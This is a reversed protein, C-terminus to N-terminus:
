KKLWASAKDDEIYKEIAKRAEEEAGTLSTQDSRATLQKLLDAKDKITLDKNKSYIKLLNPTLIGVIPSFLDKESERKMLVSPKIKVFDSEKLSNLRSTIAETDGVQAFSDLMDNMTQTEAEELEKKDTPVDLAAKRAAARDLRSRFPNKLNVKKGGVTVTTQDGSAWRNMARRKDKAVNKKLTSEARKATKHEDIAKTLNTSAQKKEDVSGSEMARDFREQAQAQAIGATEVKAKQVAISRRADLDVKDSVTKKKDALRAEVEKPDVALLDKTMFQRAKNYAKQTADVAKIDRTAGFGAATGTVMAGTLDATGTVKGFQNVGYGAAKGIGGAMGVLPKGVLPIRNLPSVAAGAVGGAVNFARRTLYNSGKGAYQRIKADIGSAGKNSISVSIKLSGILGAIILVFQLLQSFDMGIAGALNANTKAGEDGSPYLAGSIDSLNTGPINEGTTPNTGGVIFFLIMLLFLFYVIPFLCQSVLTKLWDGFINRITPWVLGAFYFPSTLLLYLVLVFRLLLFFSIALFSLGAVILIIGGFVGRLFMGVGEGFASTTNALEKSSEITLAAQDFKPLSNNTAIKVASMSNMLVVSLSQQNSLSYLKTAVVNSIDVAARTFFLSFNVLLAAVVLMVLMRRYNLMGRKQLLNADIIMLIGTYILMFIFILNTADRAMLWVTELGPLESMVWGMKVVSFRVIFDLGQGAIYVFLSSGWLIVIGVYKAATSLGTMLFSDLATTLWTSNETASGAVSTGASANQASAAAASLLGGVTVILFAALAAVHKKFTHILKNM